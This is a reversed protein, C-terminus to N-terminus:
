EVTDQSAIESVEAASPKEARYPLHRADWALGAMLAMFLMVPFSVSLSASFFFVPPLLVRAQQAFEISPIFEQLGFTLALLLMVFINYLFSM